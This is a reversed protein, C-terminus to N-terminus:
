RSERPLSGMLGWLRLLQGVLLGRLEGNLGQGRCQALLSIHVGIHDQWGVRPSGGVGPCGGQQGASRQTTERGLGPGWCPCVLSVQDVGHGRWDMGSGWTVGRSLGLCVYPLESPNQVM